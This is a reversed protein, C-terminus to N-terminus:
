KMKGEAIFEHIGKRDNPTERAKLTDPLIDPSDKKGVAMMCIAHYKERDVNAVEYSKDQDFGALAHCRLGLQNAQLVLALCAAGTDFDAWQNPKNNNNFHRKSFAILLLPAKAAWVRNSDTLLSQFNKLENTSRAYVFYWPQENFCSPSWRAAEFMTYLDEESIPDPKFARPSWREIFIDSLKAYNKKRM